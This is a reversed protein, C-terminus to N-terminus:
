HYVWTQNLVFFKLTQFFKHHILLVTLCHEVVVVEMEDYKVHLHTVEVVEEMVLIMKQHNVGVGVLFHLLYYLMLTM